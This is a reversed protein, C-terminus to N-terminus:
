QPEKVPAPFTQGNCTFGESSRRIVLRGKTRLSLFEIQDDTVTVRWNTTEYLGNPLGKEPPPRKLYDEFKLAAPTQRGGSYLIHWDGLGDRHYFYGNSAWPFYIARQSNQGVLLVGESGAGHRWISWSGFRADRWDKPGVAPLKEPLTAADISILTENSKNFGLRVTMGPRLDGAEAAKGDVRIKTDSRVPFVSVLGKGDGSPMRVFLKPTDAVQVFGLRGDLFLRETSPIKLAEALEKELRANAKKASALVDSTQMAKNEAQLADLKAAQLLAKNTELEAKIAQIKERSELWIATTLLLAAATAALPLFWGFRPRRERIPIKILEVDAEQGESSLLTEQPRSARQAKELASKPSGISSGTQPKILMWADAVCLDALKGAKAVCLLYEAQTATLELELLVSGRKKKTSVICLGLRAILDRVLQEEDFSGYDIGVIDLVISTTKMLKCIAQHMGNASFRKSEDHECARLVIQRFQHKRRDNGPIDLDGRFFADFPDSDMDSRPPRTDTILLLLTKGLAYVDSKFDPRDEPPLFWCTGRRGNLLERPSILGIDGLRWKGGVRLVNTPKVDCHVLRNAHLRKLGLLLSDAIALAEDIPLPGRAARYGELTLPKDAATGM